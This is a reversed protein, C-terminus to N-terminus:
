SNEGNQRSPDTAPETQAPEAPASGVQSLEAYAPEVQALDTPLSAVDSSSASLPPPLLSPGLSPNTRERLASLASMRGAITRYLGRYVELYLNEYVISNESPTFTKGLHTMEDVADEFSSFIGHSVGALIAMGLAASDPTQCRQLPRGLADALIQCWLDSRSGGGLVVLEAITRNIATEIGELHLRQELAIGELIARYLHAAEHGPHLGILAGRATDHWYPNMVGSWYPLAVLGDSGPALRAAEVELRERAANRDEVKLVSELLWWLTLMGGRLTTELCYRGPIAAHMTRFSHSIQYSDTVIGSSVATGLDLFGRNKSIVGSGLGSAQGDGAGAYVFVHTPLGTEKAVQPDIPGILYGSEVLEPLQHPEVGILHTLSTAWQKKRIDVLGTPDASAFSSVPRGTLKKTLYSHVDHVYAIDKLEPRNRLLYMLKYLSPTTCAPKGTLAHLRVAGVTREAAKVDEWCRSDMWLLAPALPSGNADTVVVTERQHAISLTCLSSHEEEPLEALALQLAMVTARWWSEADQEYGDRGVRQVTLSTRGTARAEGSASFIIVRVSTTSADITIFRAQQTM